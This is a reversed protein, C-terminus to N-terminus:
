HFTTWNQRNSSCYCSRLSCLFMYLKFVFFFILMLLLPFYFTFLNKKLLQYRPWTLLRFQLILIIANDNTRSVHKPIAIFFICFKWSWRVNQIIHFNRQFFENFVRTFLISCIEATFCYHSQTQLIKCSNYGFRLSLVWTEVHTATNTNNLDIPSRHSSLVLHATLEDM